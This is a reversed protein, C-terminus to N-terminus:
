DIFQARENTLYKNKLNSITTEIIKIRALREKSVDKQGKEYDNAAKKIKSLSRLIASKEKKLEYWHAIEGLDFIISCVERLVIREDNFEAAFSGITEINDISKNFLILDEKSIRVYIPGVLHIFLGWISKALRKVKEVGEGVTQASMDGYVDSLIKRIKVGSISEEVVLQDLFDFKEKVLANNNELSLIENKIKNIEFIYLIELQKRKHVSLTNKQIKNEEEIKREWIKKFERVEDPKLKKGSGLKGTKLGADALSAHPSVCLVALNSIINHSNNGDIHHIWVEKGIGDKQCICCCHRNKVLIQRELIPSLPKRMQELLPSDLLQHSSFIIAALM